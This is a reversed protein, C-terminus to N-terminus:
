RTLRNRQSDVFRDVAVTLIWDFTIGFPRPANNTFRSVVVPTWPGAAVGLRIGEVGIVAADVSVQNWQNENAELANVSLGCFYWRGRASRGTFASAKKLSLTVNNPLGEVAILGPGANTGDTDALDNEVALGRVETFKYACDLTIIPLLESAVLSDVLNALTSIDAASYGGLKEAHFTNTIARLNQEFVVTVEATNPVPQFAM